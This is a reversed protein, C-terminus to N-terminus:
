YNGKIKCFNFVNSFNELVVRVGTKLIIKSPVIKSFLHQIKAFFASM